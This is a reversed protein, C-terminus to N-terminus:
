RGLRQLIRDLQHGFQSGLFALAPAMVMLVNGIEIATGQTIGISVLFPIVVTIVANFQQKKTSDLDEFMQVRSQIYAILLGFLGALLAITPADLEM